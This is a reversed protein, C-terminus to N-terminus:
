GVPRAWHSAIASAMQPRSSRAVSAADSTCLISRSAARGQAALGLAMGVASYFVISEPMLPGALSENSLGWATYWAALMMLLGALRPPLWGLRNAMHVTRATAALAWLMLAAGVLGITVLVQLWFNHATWNALQYWVYLQGTASSVFYGHGIWPSELFSSWIAAWMETRGSLAAIQEASQGRSAYDGSVAAAQQLLELGPDAALYVGAGLCAALAAASLLLRHCYLLLLVGGIALSLSLSMRNASLAVVLGHVVAGSLLMTRTWPWRGIFHCGVLLAIGLGGTAGSNTAHFIGDGDRTMSMAAPMAVRALLLLGSLVLLLISLHRLLHQADDPRRWALAVNMALMVLVAQSFTQGLSVNKLPSWSTSLLEWGVLLLWPCMLRLLAPRAPDRWQKWLGIALLAMVGLRVALKTLAIADLGAEREPLSFTALALLWIAVLPLGRGSPARTASPRNEISLTGLTVASGPPTSDSRTNAGHM